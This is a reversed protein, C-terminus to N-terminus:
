ETDELVTEAFLGTGDALQQDSSQPVSAAARPSPADEPRKQKKQQPETTAAEVAKKQKGSKTQAEQWALFAQWFTKFNEGESKSRSRFHCEQPEPDGDRYGQACVRCFWPPCAAVSASNVPCRWEPQRLTDPLRHGCPPGTVPVGDKVQQKGEPRDMSWETGALWGRAKRGSPLTFTRQRSHYALTRGRKWDEKWMAAKEKKRADEEETKTRQWNEYTSCGWRFDESLRSWAQQLVRQAGDEQWSALSERLHRAQNPASEALLRGSADVDCFICKGSANDNVRAPTGWDKRAFVCGPAKCFKHKRAFQPPLRAVALPLAPSQLREFVNLDQQLRRAKVTNGEAAAAQLATPTCWICRQGRHKLCRARGAQTTSFCCGPDACYRQDPGRAPQAADADPSSSSEADLDGGNRRQAALRGAQWGPNAAMHATKQAFHPKLWSM